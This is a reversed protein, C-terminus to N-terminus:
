HVPVTNEARERRRPRHTARWHAYVWTLLLVLGAVGTFTLKYAAHRHLNKLEDAGLYTYMVTMCLDAAAAARAWWPDVSLQSYPVPSMAEAPKSITKQLLGRRRLMLAAVAVLGDWWVAFMVAGAPDSVINAIAGILFVALLAAHLQRCWRHPRARSPRYHPNPKM